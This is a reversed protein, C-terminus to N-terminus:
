GNMMVSPVCDIKLPTVSIMEFELATKPKGFDNVFM